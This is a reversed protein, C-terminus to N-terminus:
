YELVVSLKGQSNVLHELFTLIMKTNYEFSVMKKGEGMSMKENNKSLFSPLSLFLFM